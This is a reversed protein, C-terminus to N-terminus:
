LITRWCSVVETCGTGADLVDGVVHHQLIVLDRRPQHADVVGALGTRARQEAFFVAVLDAHHRHALPGRARGSRARSTPRVTRRCGHGGCRRYRVSKPSRRFRPQRRRAGCRPASRVGHACARWRYWPAPSSRPLRVACWRDLVHRRADGRQHFLALLELAIQRVRALLERHAAAGAIARRRGAAHAFDAVDLQHRARDLADLGLVELAQDVVALLLDAGAHDGDDADGLVALGADHDADGGIEGRAEARDIQDLDRGCASPPLPPPPRGSMACAPPGSPALASAASDAISFAM